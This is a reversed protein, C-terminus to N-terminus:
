SELAKQALKVDNLMKVEDMTQLQGDRVIVRGNAIVTNARGSQDAVLATVPNAIGAHEIRRLDFLALDAAKGIAISGLVEARGLLKAGNITAMRLVEIPSLYTSDHPIGQLTRAWRLEELVNSSDNGASGDVGIAVNLGPRLTKIMRGIPAVGREGVPQRANSVPCHVVHVGAAAMALIESEDVNICHVFSVDDGEWGLNQLLGFPRKGYNTVAYENEASSEGLHTQLRIGHSESLQRANRYDELSNAYIACPALGIRIMSLASDDDYNEILQQSSVAIVESDEVLDDPFLAGDKQSLSLSGRYLHLRLGIDDAAGIIAAFVEPDSNPIIYPMDATTTCGYLALEAMNARAATQFAEPGMRRTIEAVRNIWKEIPQNQLDRHGRMLAQFTHHHTNIHGPTVLMGRADIVEDAQGASPNIAVIRGDELLLSANELVINDNDVLAIYSATDILISRPTQELHGEPSGGASRVQRM